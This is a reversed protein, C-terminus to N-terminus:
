MLKANVTRQASYSPRLNFPLFSIPDVYALLGFRIFNSRIDPLSTQPVICYMSFDLIISEFPNSDIGVLTKFSVSTEDQHSVRFRPPSLTALPGSKRNAYSCTCPPCWILTDGQVPVLKLWEWEYSGTHHQTAHIFQQLPVSPHNPCYCHCKSYILFRTNCLTHYKNQPSLM